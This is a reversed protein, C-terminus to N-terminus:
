PAMKVLRPEFRALPRVLTEQAAMVQHIDKYVMPTEDIGASIVEVRNKELIPLADKWRYRKLAQKRSLLRGAGHAASCLSEANGLGRVVFGPTAMSGPIVGLAGASAPTAGKRHVVLSEGAHDEKWAFNHHNEVTLRVAVGLNRAIHQHILEHNAAAYEGMLEMAAWYEVGAESALDLWGLHQAAQPLDQHQKRAIKSYHQCVEAGTGRSGSHSLLALYSGRELGLSPDTIELM